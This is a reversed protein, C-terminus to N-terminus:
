KHLPTLRLRRVTAHQATVDIHRAHLGSRHSIMTRQGAIEVDVLTGGTKADDRVILRLTFPRDIGQLHEIAYDVARHPEGGERLSRGEGFRATAQGLDLTWPCVGGEDDKLTIVVKGNSQPRVRCTLLYSSADTSAEGRVGGFTTTFPKRGNVKRALLRRPGTTEPMLEPMFRSGLRGDAGQLLERVVLPGGWHRNIEVWGAMVYREDPLPTISPVSLGDYFDLGQSVMDQYAEIPADAPKMWLHTFGGVIYDYGGWRFIFTCDGGPPFDDSICRWGGQLADSTWTGRAGYNALMMLQGEADTYITPNEAPHILLHSKQFLTGDADTAMSYSAGSPYRGDLAAFPLCVSHGLAHISDWQMPTSTAEGPFLRSTHMGYSIHLTDHLVFPTGTGITEWPEDLPVAAEHETWHRFDTTSLHEFYHGGRGFKSRHGRRDFLYFLHYRGHHYIAAVDGVWANHGGPTFYQLPVSSGAVDTRRVAKLAPQSFHWASVQQSDVHFAEETLEQVAEGFPFDNDMLEGDVYLTWRTGTYNLVVQHESWPQALRSLPIGVRMQEVPHGETPLKLSLMAELVPCSGDPLPFVAYNQGHDDSGRLGDVLRVTLVDPVELLTAEGAQPTFTFRVSFGGGADQGVFQWQNPLCQVIGEADAPLTVLSLLIVLHLFKYKM